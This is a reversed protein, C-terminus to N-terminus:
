EVQLSSSGVCADYQWGVSRCVSRGVSEGSRGALCPAFGSRIQTRLMSRVWVQGVQLAHLSGLDSRALCPTFRSMVQGHSVSLGLLVLERSQEAAVVAMFLIQVLFSTSEGKVQKLFGCGCWGQRYVGEYCAGQYSM